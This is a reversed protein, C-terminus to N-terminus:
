ISPFRMNASKYLFIGPSAGRVGATVDSTPARRRREHPSRPWYCHDDGELHQVGGEWIGLDAGALTRKTEAPDISRFDLTRKTVAPDISRFDLTRKTKTWLTWILIFWYREAHWLQNNGSTTNQPLVGLSHFIGVLFKCKKTIFSYDTSCEQQGKIRLIKGTDAPKKWWTVDWKRKLSRGDSRSATKECRTASRQVTKSRRQELNTDDVIKEGKVSQNIWDNIVLQLFRYFTNNKNKDV